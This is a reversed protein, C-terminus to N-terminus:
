TKEYAVPSAVTDSSADSSPIGLERRAVELFTNRYPKFLTWIDTGAPLQKYCLNNLRYSYDIAAQNLASSCVLEICKQRFWMQHTRSGVDQPAKGKQYRQEAAQEVHQAVELFAEIAIKREARLAAARADNAQQKTVRASLYTGLLAGAAGLIVGLLPVVVSTVATAYRGVPNERPCTRNDPRHFKRYTYLPAGETSWAQRDM